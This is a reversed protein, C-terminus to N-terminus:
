SEEQVPLILSFVSGVGPTSELRVEGGHARVIERVITLGIGAGKIGAQTANGGRYFREFVHKLDESAIGIGRDIVRFEVKGEASGVEVRVSKHDPSHKVANDLLNWLAGALAERDAHIHAGNVAGAFEVVYGATRVTEGFQEVVAQAWEQGDLSEFRFQYAGSQMRGFDLLSEVLRRLRDSEAMMLEYVRQKQEELDVRGRALMEALQRISTLPTRFEHSVASVFASQLRAVALERVMSRAIFYSGAALLLAFVIFGAVILRRRAGSAASRAWDGAPAVTLNWPLGTMAAARFATPGKIPSTGFFLEGHEGTLRVTTGSDHGLGAWLRRWFSPGALRAQWAGDRSSWCVSVPSGDFLDFRRGGAAGREDARWARWATAAAKAVALREDWDPPPPLSGIWRRLEDSYTDLTPRSVVLRGGTLDAWLARAEHQLAQQQGSEELVSCRAARAVLIAPMSALSLSGIKGLEDYTKLAEPWRRQRRLVRGLRVLAGARVEAPKSGALRRYTAEAKELDRQDFEFEEAERFVDPGPTAESSQAPSFALAGPPLIEVSGGSIVVFAEGPGPKRADAFDGTQQLSRDLAAVIRDAASELRGQVRQTEVTSDQEVVKWGLWVLASACVCMLCLFLTLVV